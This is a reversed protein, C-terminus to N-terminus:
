QMQGRRDLLQIEDDEQVSADLKDYVRPTTAFVKVRRVRRQKIRVWIAVAVNLLEISALAIM